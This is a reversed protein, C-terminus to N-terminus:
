NVALVDGAFIFSREEMSVRGMGSPTSILSLDLTTVTVPGRPVKVLATLCMWISMWITLQFSFPRVPLNCPVLMIRVQVIRQPLVPPAQLRVLPPRKLM